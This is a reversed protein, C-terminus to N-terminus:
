TGHLVMIGRENQEWVQCPICALRIGYPFLRCMFALFAVGRGTSLTAAYTLGDGKVRIVLGVTGRLNQREMDLTIGTAAYASRNILMGALVAICLRNLWRYQISSVSLFKRYWM